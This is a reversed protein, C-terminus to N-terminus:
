APLAWVARLAEIVERKIEVAPIRSPELRSSHEAFPEADPRGYWLEPAPSSVAQAHWRHERKGAREELRELREALAGLDPRPAPERRPLDFWSTTNLVLRATTGGLGPGLVLVRDAKTSGFLAHRGPDFTGEAGPRRSTQGHGATFVTLDLHVLDDRAGRALDALDAHLAVLAPEWLEREAELDGDLWAPLREFGARYCLEHRELDSLGEMRAALPSREPDAYASVLADIQFAQDSPHRFFDGAEAAALLGEARARAAEPHLLAFASCLGDTDYHNTVIARCGAALERRRAEPLENFALAIGTSLPQRLEAPTRNGPWHSLELGPAGFAGDVSIVPEDGPETQIRFPLDM